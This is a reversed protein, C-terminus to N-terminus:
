KKESSSEHKQTQFALQPTPLFSSPLDPMYPQFYWQHWVEEIGKTAVYIESSMLPISLVSSLNVWIIPRTEVWPVMCCIPQVSTRFYPFSTHFGLNMGLSSLFTIKVVVDIWEHDKKMCNALHLRPNPISLLSHKYGFPVYLCLLYLIISCFYLM